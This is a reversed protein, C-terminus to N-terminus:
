LLTGTRKGASISQIHLFNKFTMALGLSGYLEMLQDKKMDKLELSSSMRRSTLVEDGADGSGTGTESDVPNICHEKIAEFQADTIDGEIM